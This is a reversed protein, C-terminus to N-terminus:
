LRTYTIADRTKNKTQKKKNNEDERWEIKRIREEDEITFEYRYQITHQIEIGDICKHIDMRENM